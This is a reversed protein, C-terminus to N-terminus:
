KLPAAVPEPRGWRWSVRAMITDMSPDVTRFEGTPVGSAHTQFVESDFEYHRYELGATWGPSITWDFGTGIYWGAFRASGDIPTVVGAVPVKAESHHAYKANAYGGAIYPM